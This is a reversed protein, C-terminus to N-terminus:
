VNGDVEDATPPTSIDSRWEDTVIDLLCQQVTVFGSQVRYLYNPPIPPDMIAIRELGAQAHDWLVKQDDSLNERFSPVSM